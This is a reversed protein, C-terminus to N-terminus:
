MTVVINGVHRKALFMEQAERLRALPFKAALLPKIDGREIMGVLERFMGQPVITAGTFVLNNLYFVRLDFPVMPGAIAGACTYRGGRRLAGIFQPWLPGGVVDAVVDVTNRGTAARLAARLDGPERPLVVAAGIEKVAAAKDAGCLAVPLAGLGRALQVLASGVGGSAGPILVSEGKGVNARRLLHLATVSSTAFTALEADGLASNVAIANGAPAITFDAYGGDTESGFYIAKDPDGPDDADLLWPDIMVREGIRGAPVGDGVAAIRGAVDAGQIRPFRLPTRSWSGTETRAEGFGGSGGETTVASTVAESYWGTRTNVDTNNLGCAGVRILVEGPGPRPVPWDDRFVLKDFGGHGTLVVARMTTPLPTM